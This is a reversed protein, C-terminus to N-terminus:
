TSSYDGLSRELDLLEFRAGLGFSYTEIADYNPRISDVHQPNGNEIIYTQLHFAGSIMKVTRHQIDFFM